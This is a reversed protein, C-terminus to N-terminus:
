IDNFLLGCSAIKLAIAAWSYFQNPAAIKGVPEPECSFRLQNWKSMPSKGIFVLCIARVFEERESRQM